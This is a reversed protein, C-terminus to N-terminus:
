IYFQTFGLPTGRKSTLRCTIGTEEERCAFFVLSHSLSLHFPPHVFLRKHCHSSGSVPQINTTRIFLSGYGLGPGDPLASKLISPSELLTKHHLRGAPIFLGAAEGSVIVLESMNIVSQEVKPDDSVPSASKIEFIRLLCSGIVVRLKVFVNALFPCAPGARTWTNWIACKQVLCKM